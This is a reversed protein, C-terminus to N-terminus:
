MILTSNGTWTHWKCTAVYCSTRDHYLQTYLIFCPIVIWTLFEFGWYLLANDYIVSNVLGNLMFPVIGLLALLLPRLSQNTMAVPM